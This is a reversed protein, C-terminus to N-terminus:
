LRAAAAALPKFVGLLGRARAARPLGHRAKRDPDTTSLARPPDGPPRGGKLTGVSFGAAATLSDSLTVQDSRKEAPPPFGTMWGMVAPDSEEASLSAGTQAQAGGSIAM